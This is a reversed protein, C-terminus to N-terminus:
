TCWCTAEDHVLCGRHGTGSIMTTMRTETRCGGSHCWQGVGGIELGSVRGDGVDKGGGGGGGQWYPFNVLLCWSLRWYM